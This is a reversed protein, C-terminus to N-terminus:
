FSNIRLFFTGSYTDEPDIDSFDLSSLLESISFNLSRALISIFDYLLSSLKLEIIACFLYSLSMSDFVGL